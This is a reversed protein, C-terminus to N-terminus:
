YSDKHLFNSSHKAVLFLVRATLIFILYLTAWGLYYSSILPTFILFLLSTLVVFFTYVVFKQFYTTVFIHLGYNDDKASNMQFMSAAGLFAVLALLAQVLSSFVWYLTNESVISKKLISFLFILIFFIVQVIYFPRTRHKGTFYGGLKWYIDFIYEEIM